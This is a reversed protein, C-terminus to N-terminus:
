LVQLVLELNNNHNNTFWVFLSYVFRKRLILQDHKTLLFYAVWGYKM